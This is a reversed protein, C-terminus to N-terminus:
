ELKKLREVGGQCHLIGNILVRDFDDEIKAWYIGDTYAIVIYLDCIDALARAAELKTLSFIFTSYKNHACTRTKVEIAAILKENRVVFYDVTSYKSTAVLSSGPWLKNAFRKAIERERPNFIDAM